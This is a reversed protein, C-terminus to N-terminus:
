IQLVRRVPFIEKIRDFVHREVRGPILIKRKAPLRPLSVVIEVVAVKARPRLILVSEKQRSQQRMGIRM